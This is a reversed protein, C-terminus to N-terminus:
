LISEIHLLFVFCNFGFNIEWLIGIFDLAIWFFSYFKEVKLYKCFGKEGYLFNREM